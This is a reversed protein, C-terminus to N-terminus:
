MGCSVLDSSQYASQSGAAPRSPLRAVPCVVTGHLHRTVPLPKQHSRPHTRFSPHQHSVMRFLGYLLVTRNTFWLGHVTGLCHMHVTYVAKAPVVSLTCCWFCMATPMVLYPVPTTRYPSPVTRARSGRLTMSRAGGALRDLGMFVRRATAM